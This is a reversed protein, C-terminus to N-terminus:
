KNNTSVARVWFSFTAMTTFLPFCVFLWFCFSFLQQFTPLSSLWLPLVFSRTVSQTFVVFRSCICLFCVSVLYKDRNTVVKCSHLIHKVAVGECDAAGYVGEVCRGFFASIMVAAAQPLAAFVKVASSPTAVASPVSPSRVSFSSSTALIHVCKVCM